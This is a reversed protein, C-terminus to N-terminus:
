CKSLESGFRAAIEVRFDTRASRKWAVYRLKIHYDANLFSYVPCHGTKRKRVSLHGSAGFGQWAGPLAVDPGVAVNLPEPVKKERCPRCHGVFDPPSGGTSHLHPILADHPQVCPSGKWAPGRRPRPAIASPQISRRSIPPAPGLPYTGAQQDTLPSLTAQITFSTLM